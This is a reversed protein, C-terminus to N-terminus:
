HRGSSWREIQRLLDAMKRTSGTMMQLPASDVFFPGPKRTTVWRAIGGKPDLKLLAKELEILYAVRLLLDETWVIASM